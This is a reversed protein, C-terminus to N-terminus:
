RKPGGPRRTFLLGSWTSDIAIIKYDVLGAAEATRRVAQQTLDSEVGSSKKPWAIWVPSEAARVAIQDMRRRMASQSRAFWVILDARGRLGDRLVAGQPLDHLQAAFDEPPDVLSVVSGETIGLKRSLPVGAYGAMRSAPVVPDTPPKAIGGRLAPGIDSWTTFVADPLLARVRDVKDSAGEVFVLPLHRTSRRHRVELALDRGGSPQRSLDIVLAAPPDATLKKFLDPELRPEWEVRYGEATLRDRRGRGEDVNWHILRVREIQLGESPKSVISNRAKAAPHLNTRVESRL